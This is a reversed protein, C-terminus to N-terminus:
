NYKSVRRPSAALSNPRRAPTWAKVPSKAPGSKSPSGKTPSGKAPSGKAPSGKAPSGKTSGSKTTTGKSRPSTLGSGLSAGQCSGLTVQNLGITAGHGFALGGPQPTGYPAGYPDRGAMAPAASPAVTPAVATAVAPGLYENLYQLHYGSPIGSCTASPAQVAAAANPNAFIVSQASNYCMWPLLVTSMDSMSIVPVM